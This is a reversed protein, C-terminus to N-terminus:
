HTKLPDQSIHDQHDKDRLLRVWTPHYFRSGYGLGSALDGSFIDKGMTWYNFVPVVTVTKQLSRRRRTGSIMVQLTDRCYPHLM